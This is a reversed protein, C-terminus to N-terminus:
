CAGNRSYEQMPWVTTVDTAAQWIDKRKHALEVQFGFRTLFRELLNGGYIGTAFLAQQEADYDLRVAALPQPAPGALVRAGDSPDYVSGESCCYIVQGRSWWDSGTDDSSMPKHRYDIFSVNPTPYSMRHACIASFAVISRNPGVGGSWQYARGDSTLLDDGPEASSGLDILFCPTTVYPYHFVYSRGVIMERAQFTEGAADVLRVREGPRLEGAARSILSPSAAVAAGAGACIKLFKRRDVSRSDAM